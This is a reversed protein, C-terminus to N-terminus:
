AQKSFLKKAWEKVSADFKPKIQDVKFPLALAGDQCIKQISPHDASLTRVLNETAAKLPGKLVDGYHMTFGLNSDTAIADVIEIELEALVDAPLENWAGHKLSLNWFKNRQLYELLEYSAITTGRGIAITKLIYNENEMARFLISACEAEVETEVLSLNCTLSALAIATSESVKCSILELEKLIPQVEKMDLKFQTSLQPQHTGRREVPLLEFPEKMELNPLCIPYKGGRCNPNTNDPQVEIKATTRSALALIARLTHKAKEPSPAIISINTDNCTVLYEVKCGYLAPLFQTTIFPNTDYLESFTAMVFTSSGVKAIADTSDLSNFLEEVSELKELDYEDEVTYVPVKLEDVSEINQGKGFTENHWDLFISQHEALLSSSDAVLAYCRKIFYNNHLKAIEKFELPEDTSAENEQVSRLPSVMPSSTPSDYFLRTGGMSLAAVASAKSAVENFQKQASQTIAKKLDSIEQKIETCDDELKGTRQVLGAQNRALSTITSQNVNSTEALRAIASQNADSAEALSAITSQNASIAEQNAEQNKALSAIASSNASTAEQNAEQNKALNGIACQNAIIAEQNAMQNQTLSALAMTSAGLVKMMDDISLSTAVTADAPVASLTADSGTVAAARADTPVAAPIASPSADPSAVTPVSTVVAARARAAAIIDAESISEIVATIEKSPMAFTARLHQLLVGKMSLPSVKHELYNAPVRDLCHRKLRGSYNPLNPPVSHKGQCDVCYEIPMELFPASSPQYLQLNVKTTKNKESIKLWKQTNDKLIAARIM